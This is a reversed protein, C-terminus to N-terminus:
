FRMMVQVLLKNTNTSFEAESTPKRDEGFGHALTAKLDFNKYNLSYGVGIAHLNRINDETNFRDTNKWVRASDVFLSTNHAVQNHQPLSYILDLSLSMGEDGSLESDEYARVGNSGAVSIDESSDLNKGFSKQGRFNTQLALIPSFQQTHTLNVNAKSYSGETKIAADNTKAVSNDMSVDGATVSVSAYLKGPHNAINTNKKESYTLTASNVSKQAETVSGITGSSDEMDKMALALAITQTHSRTKLIPYSINANIANTTGFGEYNPIEDLEYKTVSAGLGGKLGSYGLPRDYSMGINKLDTTNSIMGSFGLTDGIGSVSNINAGASLRYEGTYRSGYNDVIGYGTYKKMPSTTITFNSTGVESGPFVEANSVIVGSLDNILLMQRELSETSVIQGNKLYDMFGQIEDDKVLSSNKVEFGGYTGEIIAIEVVGDKLKQEPLYARAVFYGTDRYHKTIISALEKLKNIGMQTNTNSTILQNLEESSYISNGSFTFEKVETTFDDKVSLPAKYEKALSPLTKQTEEIKPKETQRLIDGTSPPTVALLTSSAVLSLTIIKAINSKM